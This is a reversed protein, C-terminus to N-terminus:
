HLVARLVPLSKIEGMHQTHSHMFEIFWDLLRFRTAGNMPIQSVSELSRVDLLLGVLRADEDTMFPRQIPPFATFGGEQMNLHPTKASYNGTINYGLMNCCERSFYLPYNGVKDVEAKDLRMFYDMSEGFLEPIPAQEPLLRLLLEVSYLAISNKVVHEQLSQYIYASQFEKIRQLNAQPKHYVVMDLLSAPQLLGAKNGKTKSSRVGQVMYSQVGYMETFVSCVVSTEGYKITRLVIGKTQQLM